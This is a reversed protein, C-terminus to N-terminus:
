AALRVNYLSKHAAHKDSDLSQQTFRRKGSM